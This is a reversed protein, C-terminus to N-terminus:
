YNNKRFQHGRKKFTYNTTVKELGINNGISYGKNEGTLICNVNPYKNEIKQKFQNSNSNEVVIVKIDRPISQLCSNIVEDSKFTVVVITLEKSEM